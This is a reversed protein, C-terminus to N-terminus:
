ITANESSAHMMIRYHHMCGLDFGVWKQEFKNFVHPVIRMEKMNGM